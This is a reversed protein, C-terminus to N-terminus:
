NSGGGGFEDELLKKDGVGRGEEGSPYMCMIGVMWGFERIVLSVLWSVFIRWECAMKNKNKNKQKWLIAVRIIACRKIIRGLPILIQLSTLSESHSRGGDQKQQM